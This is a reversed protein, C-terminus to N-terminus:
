FGSTPVLFHPGIFGIHVKKTPGRTDDFFYVRPIHDNGRMQIKAHCVMKKLGEPDLETSVSFIRKARLEPDNMTPQSEQMAIKNASYGGGQTCWALFDGTFRKSLVASAFREMSALLQSLDRAWVGSLESADLVDISREATHPLVV